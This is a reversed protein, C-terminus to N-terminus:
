DPVPRKVHRRIESFSEGATVAGALRQLREIEDAAERMLGKIMDANSDSVDDQVEFTRLRAVLDSM